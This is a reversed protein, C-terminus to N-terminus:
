CWEMGEPPEISSDMKRGKGAKLLGANRPEHDKRGDEFDATYGKSFKEREEESRQKGWWMEKRVRVIRCGSDRQYPGRHKCQAWRFFGPCDGKNFHNIVGIFYTKNQFTVYYCNGHIPCPCRQPGIERDVIDLLEVGLIWELCIFAKTRVFQIHTNIAANNMWLLWISSVIWHGDVPLNIFPVLYQCTSFCPYVEFVDHYTFVSSEISWM